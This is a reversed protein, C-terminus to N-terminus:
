RRSRASPTSGSRWASSATAARTPARWWTERERARLRCGGLADLADGGDGRARDGQARGAPLILGELAATADSTPNGDRDTAWGEPIPEGKQAYVRMKGHATMGFAIDLVLPPEAETPFAIALPNMGVLKDTGGWPAMTPLANTGALGIMGHPLARMAWFDMAGCHNSHGVAAMALGHTRAAEIVRDMAFAM